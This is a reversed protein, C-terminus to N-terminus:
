IIRMLPLYNVSIDFRAVDHNRIFILNLDGVKTNSIHRRRSFDFLIGDHPCGIVKRRLLDGSFLHPGRRVQKRQSNDEVFEDGSSAGKFSFLHVVDEM